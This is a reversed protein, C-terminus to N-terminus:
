QSSVGYMLIQSLKTCIRVCMIIQCATMMNENWFVKEIIIYHLLCLIKRFVKGIHKIVM